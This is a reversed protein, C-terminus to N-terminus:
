GDACAKFVIAGTPCTQACSGCSVCTSWGMPDDFDFVVRAARGRGEIGIVNNVEVDRCAQVCRTCHICKALDVAIGPHSADPATKAAAHPFRSVSVGMATATHGCESEAAVYAEALLLEMVICRIGVVRESDTRVVLGDVAKLRCSPQLTRYGDVEVLCLRCNGDPQFDPALSLCARPIGIGHRQAVRWVIEGRCAVIQRGDLTFVVNGGGQDRRDEGSTGVAATSETTDTM